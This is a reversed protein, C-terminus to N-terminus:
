NIGLVTKIDAIQQATITSFDFSQLISEGNRYAEYTCDKNLTNGAHSRFKFGTNTINCIGTEGSSAGLTLTYTRSEGPIYWTSTTTSVNADYTAVTVNSVSFPLLVKVYDPKYGLNVEVVADNTSGTTFTGTSSSEDGLNLRDILDMTQSTTMNSFDIDTIDGSVTGNVWEQNTADYVLGQGDTPSSINVDTLGALSSSGGGGGSVTQWTGDGRLFKTNDGSAPAPVLGHAGATSATAGTMDTGGSPTDWTGDGKLYKDEDGAEPVPVRGSEGDDNATAGVMIKAANTQNNYMQTDIIDTNANVVAVNYFDTTAPKTLNFHASQSAM